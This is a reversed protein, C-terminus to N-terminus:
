RQAKRTGGSPRRAEGLQQERHARLDFGWMDDLHGYLVAERAFVDDARWESVQRLPETIPLVKADAQFYIAHKRAFERNAAKENQQKTVIVLNGLSEICLGRDAPDEFWARWQSTAAHKRPLVHEVTWDAHELRQLGGAIRDNIRLLVLKAIVPLREHLDQMNYRISREEAGSLELPGGPRLEGQRIAAAIAGFRAVRKSTGVRLFRLGYAFRDLGRLFPLVGEPATSAKLWYLMAPPLWESSPLWNLYTLVQEVETAKPWRAARCRRIDDFAEAAPKLVEFVFREAGGAQQVLARISSIVPGNPKGHMARVHSFLDEFDEGLSKEMVDWADAVKAAADGSVRALLDAKLIDNRALPKGRENLVMFMRHARDLGTTTILVVSVRDLLFTALRARQGADWESLVKFFMERVALIRQQQPLMDDPAAGGRGRRVHAQFFADDDARLKFWPVGASNATNTIAQLVRADPAEGKAVAADRLACLMISLTTLRQLGDVVEFTRVPGNEPWGQRQAAAADRDVLLIAGLFDDAIESPEAGGEAEAAACLDDFLQGAETRTWVYPRQYAPTEIQFPTHFLRGLPTSNAAFQM